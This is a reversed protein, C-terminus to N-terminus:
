FEDDKVSNNEDKKIYKKVKIRLKRNTRLQSEIYKEKYVKSIKRIAKELDLNNINLM